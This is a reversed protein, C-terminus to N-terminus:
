EEDGSEAKKFLGLKEKLLVIHEKQKEIQKRVEKLFPNNEDNTNIFQINNELQNLEKRAEDIKKRLMDGEKQLLRGGEQALSQVKHEFRLLASEKQDMKLAGFFKDLLDNFSQEIDMHDRPVKGISKWKGIYKKLDEVAKEGAAKIDFNELEELLAKKKELNGMFAKEAENRQESLREFFHNCAGRFEAWIKDSEQKPVYGVKKWEQQLRKIENATEKWATSDKIANVRELLDKKRQLNVQQEEKLEKYFAKKAKHFQKNWSRLTEWLNDNEPLPIYGLSIFKERILNFEQTAKQWTQHSKLQDINMESLQDILSKKEQLKDENRTRIDQFYEHRKDHILKTAASFRDWLQDRLERDVPGVEKWAKHLKQLEQFTAANVPQNELAEAKACLEEKQELNKKFDLDRLENSIRLFDYFNDVHFHYNNYLDQSATRPVAGTERWKEQLERFTKYLEPVPSDKGPLEKIQELIESKIKLNRELREELEKRYQYRANKYKGYLENFKERAPQVIHFDIENGGQEIFDHLRESREDDLVSLISAKIGDFHKKAKEIPLEGLVKQAAHLLDDVSFHAYDPMEESENAYEDDEHHEDSAIDQDDEEHVDSTSEPTENLPESESAPTNIAENELENEKSDKM